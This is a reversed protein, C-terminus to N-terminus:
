LGKAVMKVGKFVAEGRVIRFGTAELWERAQSETCTESRAVSDWQMEFGSARMVYIFRPSVGLRVALEKVTLKDSTTTTPVNSM